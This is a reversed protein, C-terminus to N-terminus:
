ASPISKKLGKAANKMDQDLKMLAQDSYMRGTLWKQVSPFSNLEPDNPKMDCIELFMSVENFVVIDGITMNKGCLYPQDILRNELAGLSDMIDKRYKNYQSLTAKNALKEPQYVM